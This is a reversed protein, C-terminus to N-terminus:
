EANARAREGRSRSITSVARVNTASCSCSMASYKVAWGAATHFWGGSGAYVAQAFQFVPVQVLKKVRRASRAKCLVGCVVCLAYQRRPKYALDDCVNVLGKDGFVVGGREHAVELPASGFVFVVPINFFVLPWLQGIFISKM